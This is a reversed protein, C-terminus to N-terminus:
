RAAPERIKASVGPEFTVRATEAGDHVLVYEIHGRSGSTILVEFVQDGPVRRGLFEAWTAMDKELVARYWPAEPADAPARDLADMVFLLTRPLSDFTKLEAVHNVGPQSELNAVAKSKLDEAPSVCGSAALLCHLAITLSLVKAAAVWHRVARQRIDHFSAPMASM